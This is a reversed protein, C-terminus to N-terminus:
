RVVFLLPLEQFRCLLSLLFEKHIAGKRKVSFSENWDLVRTVPLDIGRCHEDVM